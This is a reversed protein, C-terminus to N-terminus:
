FAQATGRCSHADRRSDFVGIENITGPLLPSRALQWFFRYCCLPMGAAERHRRYASDAEHSKM